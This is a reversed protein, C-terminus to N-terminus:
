CYVFVWLVENKSMESNDKAVKMKAFFLGGVQLPFYCETHM